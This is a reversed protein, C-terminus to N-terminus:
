AATILKQRDPDRLAKDMADWNIPYSVAIRYEVLISVGRNRTTQTRLDSRRDLVVRAFVSV